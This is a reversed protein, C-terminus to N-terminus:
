FDIPIRILKDKTPNRAIDKFHTQMKTCIMARQCVRSTSEHAVYISRAPWIQGVPRSNSMPDCNTKM